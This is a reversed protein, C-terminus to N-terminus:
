EEVNRYPMLYGLIHQHAMLVNNGLESVLPIIASDHSHNATIIM